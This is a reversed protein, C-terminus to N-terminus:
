SCCRSTVYCILLLIITLWAYHRKRWTHLSYKMPNEHDIPYRGLMFDYSDQRFGDCFNNIWWRYFTKKLDDLQGILTRSRYRVFDSKLAATGAYQESISDGNDAWLRRYEGEFNIHNGIRENDNLIGVAKLQRELMKCSILTQIVNTRDLSDVCNTRFLSKQNRDATAKGKKYLFYGCQAMQLELIQMLEELADWRAGKCKENFDFEILQMNLGINRCVQGYLEALDEEQKKRSLLSILILRDYKRLWYDCHRRFREVHGVGIEFDVVICPSWHLNPKQSWIVPVSGRI